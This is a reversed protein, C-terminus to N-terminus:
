KRSVPNLGIAVCHLPLTLKAHQLEGESEKCRKLRFVKRLFLIAPTNQLVELPNCLTSTCGSPITTLDVGRLLFLKSHLSGHLQDPVLEFLVSVVM